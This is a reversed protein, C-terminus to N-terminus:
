TRNRRDTLPKRKKTIGTYDQTANKDIHKGTRAVRAM